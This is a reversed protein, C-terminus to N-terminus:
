FYNCQPTKFLYTFKIVKLVTSFQITSYNKIVQDHEMAVINERQELLDPEIVFERLM